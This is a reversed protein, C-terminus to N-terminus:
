RVLAALDVGLAKALRRLTAVRPTASGTEIRVLSIPHLRARKALEAQTLFRAQRLRRIRTAM